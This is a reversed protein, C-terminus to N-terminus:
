AFIFDRERLLLPQILVAIPPRIDLTKVPRICVRHTAPKTRKKCSEGFHKDSEKGITTADAINMGGGCIANFENAGIQIPTEPGRYHIFGEKEDAISFSPDMDRYYKFTGLQLTNCGKSINHEKKCFKVIKM